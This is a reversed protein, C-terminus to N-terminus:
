FYKKLLVNALCKNGAVENLVCVCQEKKIMFPNKTCSYNNTFIKVKM